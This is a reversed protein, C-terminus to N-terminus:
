QNQYKSRPFRIKDNLWDRADRQMLSRLDRIQSDSMSRFFKKRYYAWVGPAFTKSAIQLGFEQVLCKMGRAALAQLPKLTPAPRRLQRFTVGPILDIDGYGRIDVFTKIPVGKGRFQIEFRTLQDDAAFLKARVDKTSRLLKLKDYVVITRTRSQHPYTSIGRRSRYHVSNQIGSVECSSSLDEVSVGLIDVAWDIRYIRADNLSGCITMIIEEVRSLGLRDVDVFEIKSIGGYSGQYYLRVPLQSKTSRLDLFHEYGGRRKGKRSALWEFHAKVSKVIVVLKNQQCSRGRQASLICLWLCLARLATNVIGTRKRWSAFQYWCLTRISRSTHCTVTVFCLNDLIPRVVLPVRGLLLLYLMYFLASLQLSIHHIFM